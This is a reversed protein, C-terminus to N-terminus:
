GKLGSLAIGQIFYRQLLFFVLIMPIVVLTSAAMMLHYQTGHVTQFQTLGVALTRWEDKNTVVLPWLLSNWNDLFIFVALAALPGKSLPLVIQTYIRFEGAGDIRAADFLEDPLTMIFQRLLFIGFASMAGPIILASYSNLWKLDRMLIFLPVIVVHFPIMMTALILLFLINKGFFNYKAFGYGALSCFFLNALTAAGSVYVSNFFYRAFPATNWAEVYNQWRFEWPIWDIPVTFLRNPAKLSSTVMWILPLCIIVAGIILVTHFFINRRFQQGRSIGSVSRSSHQEPLEQLNSTM